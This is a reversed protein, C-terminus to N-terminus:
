RQIEFTLTYLVNVILIKFNFSALWDPPLNFLPYHSLNLPPYVSTLAFLPLFRYHWQAMQDSLDSNDSSSRSSSIDDMELFLSAEKVGPQDDYVLM